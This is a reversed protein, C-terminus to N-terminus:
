PYRELLIKKISLGAKNTGVVYPLYDGLTKDLSLRGEDYLKMISITTACIKTVSAMDFVSEVKMPETAQYTYNGYAKQFAIKGDKLVLM